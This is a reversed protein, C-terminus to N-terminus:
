VTIQKSLFAVVEGAVNGSALISLRIGRFSINNVTVAAGITTIGSSTLNFWNTSQVVGPPAPLSPDFQSVQIVNGSSLMGASSALFITLSTADDLLGVGTGSSFLFSATSLSTTTSSTTATIMSPLNVVTLPM